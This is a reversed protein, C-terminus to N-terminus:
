NVIQHLQELVKIANKHVAGAVEPGFSNEEGYQPKDIKGYAYPPRKDWQSKPIIYGVEDNALGVICNLKGKMEGRLPPVEVPAIPYDQGAPAEIGGEAIEPYLEGPVTLVEMDGIRLADVETMAQGLGYWGKHIIGLALVLRYFPQPTVFISKAVVAVEQSESRWAKEGRLAGLVGLAVNEGLAQAKDYSAERFERTGDRHPVTTHLQTMLGGVMGQFYLCMGDLGPAGKPDPVGKEVGERLYHSFDSTLLPNDSGLTEAHNGWVVMTGITEDTGHKVFRACRAVNDFVQPQRSDDVFGEPGLPTQAFIADAPQLRGAAEEAANVVSQIVFERYIHDFRIFPWQEGISWIGMTDPAEHDHLCSVVLHDIGAAPNLRKRMEIIADSFLGISDVTVMAVRVGNNEFAIARAWLPDHVGQAPRDNGFGAIWVADLKGNGNTDEFYDGKEPRYKGDGDKDVFKDYRSLDPSIDSKAVGVKLVDPKSAAGAAPKILDARYRHYPGRAHWYVALLILVPLAILFSVIKHQSVFDRFWQM